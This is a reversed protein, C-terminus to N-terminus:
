NTKKDSKPAEVPAPTEHTDEEGGKNVIEGSFTLVRNAPRTNTTVTIVKTFTGAHSKKTDFVAVIKGMSDPALPAKPFDAVTCGCSPEAAIIYLPKDGNNKLDFTIQAEEGMTLVGLNQVSDLYQVSTFNASDAAAESATKVKQEPENKCSFIALTILLLFSYKM